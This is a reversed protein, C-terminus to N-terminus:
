EKVIRKVATKGGQKVVLYFVGNLGWTFSKNFLGTNTKDKWISKGDSDTLQVDAATKAPLSFALTTKGASFQPTLTLDQLELDSKDVGAVKKAADMFAETVRYSIHTSIGEKDTNNYDFNQTNGLRMTRLRFPRNNYTMGDMVPSPSEMRMPVQPSVRLDNIEGAIRGNLLSRVSDAQYTFLKVQSSDQYDQRLELAYNTARPGKPKVTKNIEAIADQKEAPKMDKLNKGNFTTDNNHITINVEKHKQAFLFQPLALAVVIGASFLVEFSSNFFRNKM